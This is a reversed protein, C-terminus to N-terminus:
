TRYLCTLFELSSHVIIVIIYMGRITFLLKYIYIFTLLPNLDVYTTWEGKYLSYIYIPEEKRRYLASSNGPKQTVCCKASPGGAGLRIHTLFM